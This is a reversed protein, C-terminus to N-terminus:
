TLTSHDSHSFADSYNFCWLFGWINNFTIFFYSVILSSQVLSLVILSCTNIDRKHITFRGHDVHCFAYSCISPSPPFWLAFKMQYLLNRLVDHSFMIRQAVSLQQTIFEGFTKIIWLAFIEKIDTLISEGCRSM